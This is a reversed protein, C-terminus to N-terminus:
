LYNSFLANTEIQKLTKIQSYINRHLYTKLKRNEVRINIENDMMNLFVVNEISGFDMFNSAPFTIMKGFTNIM